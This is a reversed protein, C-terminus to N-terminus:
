RRVPRGGRRHRPDVNRAEPAAALRRAMDFGGAPQYSSGAPSGRRSRYQSPALQVWWVRGFICGGTSGGGGGGAGSGGVGSGGVGLKPPGAAVLSGAGGGGGPRTEEAPVGASGPGTGGPGPRPEGGPATGGPGPGPKGGPGEDSGPGAGGSEPERKSGPGPAGSIPRRPPAEGAGGSEPERKSGPGPAGSIPRRPPAEGAEGSEPERKSGPGKWVFFYSTGARKVPQSCLFFVAFQNVCFSSKKSYFYPSKNAKKIM